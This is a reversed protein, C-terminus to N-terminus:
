EVAILLPYREQGGDYVVTDLDPRGERLHQVVATV